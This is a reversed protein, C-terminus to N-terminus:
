GNALEMRSTALTLNRVVGNGKLTLSWRRAMFGAPLTYKGYDTATFTFASYGEPEVTVEVTGDADVEIVAFNTPQPMTFIKSRWEYQRVGYAQFEYISAGRGFYLGDTQPLVFSSAGLYDSRSLSGSEDMDIVLAERGQWHAIVKGDHAALVISGLFGATEKSWDGRTWFRQSEQISATAGAVMVLGDHSAYVVGRGARCIGRASVAAQTVSLKMQTMADPSMGAVLYPGTTTVAVLGSEHAKMAKITHGFSIADLPNWAHPLYPSSFYLTDGKAAVMIGNPMLELLGLGSPPAYWGESPLEETLEDDSVADTFSGSIFSGVYFFATRSSGTASRYVRIEKIERYGASNLTPYQIVPNQADSKRIVVPDSPAGEEGWQNVATVLYARTDTEAWSVTALMSVAIVSGDHSDLENVSHEISLGSSLGMTTNPHVASGAYLTFAASGDERMWEVKIVPVASAPTDWQTKGETDVSYAKVPLGSYDFIKGNNAVSPYVTEKQYEVGGAEWYFTHRVDVIGNPLSNVTEMLTIVPDEPKPVGAKWSTLPEGGTPTASSEMTVMLNGGDLYYVRDQADDPIPSPQPFADTTWTFYTLGNATYLDRVTNSMAGILADGPMPRLEGHSFLCSRALRAAHPPLDQDPLRPIEGTFKDIKLLM